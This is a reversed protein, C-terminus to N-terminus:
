LFDKDCDLEIEEYEDHEESEDAAGDSTTTDKGHFTGGLAEYSDFLEERHTHVPADNFHMYRCLVGKPWLQKIPYM